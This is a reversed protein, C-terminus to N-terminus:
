ILPLAGYPSGLEKLRNQVLEFHRAGDVAVKFFDHYFQQPLNYRKPDFRVFTDWYKDVAGLEIHALAHFIAIPVTTNWEKMPPMEKPKYLRPYDITRAPFNPPNSSCNQLNSSIENADWKKKCEFTLRVKDMADPSRLVDEGYSFLTEITQNANDVRNKTCLTQCRFANSKRHCFHRFM